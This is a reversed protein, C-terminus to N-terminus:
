KRFSQEYKTKTNKLKSSERYIIHTHHVTHTHSTYIHPIYLHTFLLWSEEEEEEEEESSAFPNNM